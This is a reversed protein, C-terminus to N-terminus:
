VYLLYISCSYTCCLERRESRSLTIQRDVSSFTTWLVYLGCLVRNFVIMWCMAKERWFYAFLNNLDHLDKCQTWCLDGQMQVSATLGNSTSPSCSTLHLPCAPDLMYLYMYSSRVGLLEWSFKFTSFSMRYNSCLLFFLFPRLTLSKKKVDRRYFLGLDLVCLWVYLLKPFKTNIKEMRLITTSVNQPNHCGVFIFHVFCENCLFRQTNLKQPQGAGCFYKLLSCKRLNFYKVISFTFGRCSWQQILVNIWGYM